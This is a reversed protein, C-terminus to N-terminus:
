YLRCMVASGEQCSLPVNISGGPAASGTYLRLCDTRKYRDGNWSQIWAHSNMGVCDFLMQTSGMFNSSNIGALTGGIKRCAREALHYPLQTKIVRLDRYISHCIHLHPLTPVSGTTTTSPCHGSQSASFTRTRSRTTSRSHSHSSRTRTRSTSQSASITTTPPAVHGGQNNMDAPVIRIFGIGGQFPNDTVNIKVAHLGPLLLASFSSFSANYLATNPNTINTKCGDSVGGAATGFLTENLFIDFKDGSCLVDTIQLQVLRDAFVNFSPMAWTYSSNFSFQTWEKNIFLTAPTDNMLKQDNLPVNGAGGVLTIVKMGAFFEVPDIRGHVSFLLALSLALLLMQRASM